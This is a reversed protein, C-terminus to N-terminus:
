SVMTILPIIVIALLLLGGAILAILTVIGLQRAPKVPESSLIQQAARVAHKINTKEDWADVGAWEWSNSRIPLLLKCSTSTSLSAGIDSTASAITWPGIILNARSLQTDLDLDSPTGMTDAAESTLGLPQVSVDPLATQLADLISRGIRGDSDDVVVINFKSLRQKQKSEHIKRDERLIASHYMWLAAAIMSFALAHALSYIFGESQGAGFLLELLRSVIFVTSSLVTLTAILLFLYLYIRRAVSRREATGSHDSVQAFRQARRWPLLWVPLGSLLTASAVALQQRLADGFGQGSVLRILVSIESGLGALLAALGIGAVLYLYLHRITAQHMLHEAQREDNRLVTSHYAWLVGMTSLMALTLQVNGDSHIGLLGLMFGHLIISIYTITGLTSVLVIVYLYLKRITSQRETSHPNSCIEQVRRWPLIWLPLGITLRAALRALGLDGFDGIEDEPRMSVLIWHLLNVIGGTTMVLGSFSLGLLFFRRVSSAYPTDTPKATFDALLRRFYVGLVSLVGMAIVSHIIEETTSLKYVSIQSSTRMTLQILNFIMDFTNAAFPAIFGALMGHLYVPLPIPFAQGPETDATEHTQVSRWHFFFIPMGIIIVAIQFAFLDAEAGLGPILLGRLLTIIAWTISQLSVSCVLFLYWPRIITM